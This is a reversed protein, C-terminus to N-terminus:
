DRSIRPDLMGYLIDIAINCIMVVICVMVTIGMIVNYDRSEISLMLLSGIGPWGFIQEIVVSGGIVYPILLSIVTVVPILANRLGHKILVVKESLGKARATKIYDENLIELLGGRTQKVIDGMNQFAVLFAPMILHRLFDPFTPVANATYMGYAPLINLKVAFIFLMCLGLFFSPVASGLFVLTSSCNDWFSYPKWAAAVGLPIAIAIALLLGTGMLSLSAGMREAIMKSVSQKTRTSTGLDGNVIGLLWKGYRVVVPQDLGLSHELAKYAEESLDVQSAIIDVPSGPCMDSLVFVAFTLILFIPIIVLLRKIIYKIM